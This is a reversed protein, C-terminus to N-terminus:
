VSTKKDPLNALDLKCNKNTIMKLLEGYSEFSKDTDRITMLNHYLTVPLIKIILVDKVRNSELSKVLQFQGTHETNTIKSLLFLLSSALINRDNKLNLRKDNLSASTKNKEKSTDTMTKTIHESVDEIIETVPECVKKM